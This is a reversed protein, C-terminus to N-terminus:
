TSRRRTSARPQRSGARWRMGHRPARLGGVDAIDLHVADIAAKGHRVPRSCCRRGRTCRSPATTVTASGRPPDASRRSSTRPAGCSRRRGRRRGRARTRRARRRRDRLARDGRVRPTEDPVSVAKALMVYRYDTRRLAELDLAFDATDAANVRVITTAPDLPTDVLAERAAAKANPAVADELDLIVADARDAAKAYREPRDAPCFLIAPGLDFRTADVASMPARGRVLDADLPDRTGVLVGDQNRGRHASRRRHGPGAAVAVAAQAHRDDRLVAHRRSVASAPVRDRQVRPERRAHGAHAPQRIVRGHDRADDDLEGASPRVAAVGAFHADLHLAQANGTINSFLVNDAETITRGPRHLYRTSRGRVGRVVVRAARRVMSALAPQMPTM